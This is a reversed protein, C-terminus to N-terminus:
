KVTRDRYLTKCFWGVFFLIMPVCVCGFVVRAIPRWPKRELIAFDPHLYDSIAFRLTFFLLALTVLIIAILQLAYKM